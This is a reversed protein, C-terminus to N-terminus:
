RAPRRRGAARDRSPVFDCVVLLDLARATAHGRARGARLRGPQLRARAAGASRRDGLEGLLEVAPVGPGPMDDPDVGWVAAVHARAAPDDIM